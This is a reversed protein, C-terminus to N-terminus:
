LEMVLVAVMMTMVTMLITMMMMMVKSQAVVRHSESEAGSPHWEHENLENACKRRTTQFGNKQFLIDIEVYNDDVPRSIWTSSTYSESILRTTIM